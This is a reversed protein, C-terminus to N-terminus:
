ETYGLEYAHNVISRSYNSSYKGQSWCKQAGGLGMNYAMLVLHWNKADTSSMASRMKNIIIIAADISEYPNYWDSIGNKNLMTFNCENIQMMGHDRTSSIADFDFGSECWAISELIQWPINNEPGVQKMYELVSSLAYDETGAIVIVEVDTEETTPEDIYDVVDPTMDPGINLPAQMMVRSRDTPVFVIENESEENITVYELYDTEPEEIRPTMARRIEVDPVIAKINANVGIIAIIYIIGLVIMSFEVYLAIDYRQERSKRIAKEAKKVKRKRLNEM